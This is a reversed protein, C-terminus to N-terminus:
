GNDVVEVVSAHTLSEIRLRAKDDQNLRGLGRLLFGPGYTRRWATLVYGSENIDRERINRCRTCRQRITYIGPRHAVTLRRWLHQDEARCEVQGPSWRELADDLSHDQQEAM